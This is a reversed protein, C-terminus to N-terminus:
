RAGGACQDSCGAAECDSLPAPCLERGCSAGCTCVGSPEGHCWECDEDPMWLAARRDPPEGAGGAAAAVAAAARLEALEAEGARRRGTETGTGACRPCAVAAAGCCAHCAATATGGGGCDMTLAAVLDALALVAPRLLAAARTVEAAHSPHLEAGDYAATITPLVHLVPDLVRDRVARVPDDHHDGLQAPAPVGGATNDPHTMM